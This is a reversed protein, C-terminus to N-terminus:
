RLEPPLDRRLTEHLYSHYCHGGQLGQWSFLFDIVPRMIRGAIKDQNELRFMYSSITEDPWGGILTTALQDIGILINILYEKM